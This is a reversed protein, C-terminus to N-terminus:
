SAYIPNYRALNNTLQTLLKPNAAIVSFSQSNKAYRKIFSGSEKLLLVIAAANGKNLSANSLVADVKGQALYLFAINDSGFNYINSCQDSIYQVDPVCSAVVAANHIDTNDSVRSRIGDYLVGKGHNVVCEKDNLPNCIVACIVKNKYYCSLVLSLYEIRHMFNNTEPLLEWHWAYKDCLDETTDPLCIHEPHASKIEQMIMNATQTRLSELLRYLEREQMTQWGKTYLSNNINKSVKRILRAAFNSLPTM